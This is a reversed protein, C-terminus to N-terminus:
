FPVEDCVDFINMDKSDKWHKKPWQVARQHMVSRRKQPPINLGEKTKCHFGSKWAKREMRGRSMKIRKDIKKTNM